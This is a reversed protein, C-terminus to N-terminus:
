KFSIEKFIKELLEEGIDCLSAKKSSHKEEIEHHAEWYIIGTSANILQFTLSKKTTKRKKSKGYEKQTVKTVVIADVNLKEGIQRALDEHPMNADNLKNLFADVSGQLDNDTQLQSKITYSELVEEFSGKKQLSSVILEDFCVLSSGPGPAEVNEIFSPLAVIRQPHFEESTPYTKSYQPGRACGFAMFFFSLLTFFYLRDYTKKM